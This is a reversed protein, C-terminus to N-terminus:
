SKGEHINKIILPPSESATIFRHAELQDIAKMYSVGTLGYSRLVKGAESRDYVQLKHDYSIYAIRTALNLAELPDHTVHIVTTKFENLLKKILKMVYRKNEPDLNSTPEDLLLLDPEIAFARAIAVRQQQGSSLQRPYYNEYGQLGVKHLWEGAIKRAKGKSMGRAILPLAVNDLATKWPLLRPEQFVCSIRKCYVEVTGKDPKLVNMIIKLLTTKGAGNPGLLLLYDNRCVELDINDLVKVGNFSKTVSKLRVAINMAASEM